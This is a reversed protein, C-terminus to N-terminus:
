NGDPCTYFNFSINKPLLNFLKLYHKRKDDITCYCGDEARIVKFVASNSHDIQVFIIIENHSEASEFAIANYQPNRCVM